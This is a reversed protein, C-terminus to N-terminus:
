ELTIGREARQPCLVYVHMYVSETFESVEPTLTCRHGSTYWSCTSDVGRSRSSSWSCHSKWRAGVGAKGPWPLQCVGPNSTSYFGSSTEAPYLASTRLIIPDSIAWGLSPLCTHHYPAQCWPPTPPALAVPAIVCQPLSCPVVCLRGWRTTTQGLQVLRVSPVAM